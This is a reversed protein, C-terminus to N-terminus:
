RTKGKTVKLASHNSNYGAHYLLLVILDKTESIENFKSCEVQIFRMVGPKIPETLRVNIVRHKNATNRLYANKKGQFLMGFPM